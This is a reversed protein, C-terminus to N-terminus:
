SCLLYYEISPVFLVVNILSSSVMVPKTCVVEFIYGVNKWFRIVLKRFSHLVDENVNQFGM